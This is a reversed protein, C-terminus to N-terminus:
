QLLYRIDYLQIPIYKWFKWWKTYWFKFSFFWPTNHVGKVWIKDRTSFKDLLLAHAIEHGIVKANEMMMRNNMNDHLFLSMVRLGTVGSPIHSNIKVGDTTKIHQYLM